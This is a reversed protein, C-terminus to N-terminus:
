EHLLAREEKTFTPEFQLERIDNSGVYNKLLQTFYKRDFNSTSNGLGARNNKLLYGVPNERGQKKAGLGGGSWGMMKMMRFGKNNSDIKQEEEAEQTKIVGCVVENNNKEIKITDRM